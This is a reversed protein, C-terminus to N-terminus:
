DGTDSIPVTERIPSDRGKSERIDMTDSPQGDMEDLRNLVSAQSDPDPSPPLRGSMDETVWENQPIGAMSLTTTSRNNVVVREGNVWIYQVPIDSPTLDGGPGLRAAVERIDAGHFRGDQSFNPSVGVQGFRLPTETDEGSTLDYRFGNETVVVNEGEDGTARNVSNGEADEEQRRCAPNDEEGLGRVDVELLPNSRYAYLNFGGVIGWPDSQIYRGLEPSYYRRGNYHLGIESDSYHGPFRLACELDGTQTLTSQGYPLMSNEWVTKGGANAIVQPSGLHDSFVFYVDGSSPDSNLSEYEVILLPSLALNESYVYLTVRGNPGIEGILQNENWFFRTEAGQWSKRVRRGFADYEAKFAGNPGDIGILQDRSDYEFTATGEASERSAVHGRDNYTYQCGNASVVRNGSGIEVAELGPQALLNGAEDFDFREVQDQFGRSNLRHADDYHHTVRGNRTDEISLLEGEGSWQYQRIWSDQQSSSLKRKFHCRGLSDFQSLEKTGDCFEIEVIGGGHFSIKHEGGRPDTIIRTGNAECRYKVVFKDFYIAEGLQHLMQFRYEVGLGNRKELTRNGQDDYSFEVSDKLTSASVHRGFEDYGFTHEDGSALRRKTVLNGFGIEFTLLERGDGAHKALLNGEADRTYRDRVVGDRKVEILSDKLDYGFETTTGGSDVLEKIEGEPSYAIKTENGLPDTMLTPFHWHGHEFKWFKADFDTFEALNGSPDYGWTRKHGMEDTQAVLKGLHNFKRGQRPNPWWLVGLPPVDFSKSHLESEATYSTRVLSKDKSVLSLEDLAERTPLELQNLDILRGWHYEAPNAAVRRVRPDLANPDEPQIRVNGCPDVKTILAGNKDYVYKTENGNTDLESVLRGADDHVFSRVGGLPDIIQTLGNPGFFYTWEGLDARKVKTVSGPIEYTLAVGHTRKDGWAKTCRGEADYEFYFSFGTRGTRRTLRNHSDWAFTHGHGENNQTSLLNGADDYAYAVLLEKPQGDDDLIQLGRLLGSPTWRVETKRGVSDVIGKLRQDRAYYFRIQDEGRFIHKLCATQSDEAFEFEMPPEGRHHVQYVSGTIRRMVYGQSAAEEGDKLLPPFSIQKGVPFEYLIGDADYRLRREYDHTQGWGMAYRVHSQSSDYNRHWRLELPGILRFEFSQDLNAGSIVDVPDGV